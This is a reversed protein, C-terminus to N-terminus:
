NLYGLNNQPQVFAGYDFDSYWTVQQKCFIVWDSCGLQSLKLQYFSGFFLLILTLNFFINCDFTDVVVINESM